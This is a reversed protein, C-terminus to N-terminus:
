ELGTAVRAMESLFHGWGFPYDSIDAARVFGAHILTVRTGSGDPELLWTVSQTPVSTDGRWDPWSITLKENPVLELIEMAPGAHEIEAEEQWGLDFRGGVRPEVRADKALWQNLAAPETLARFVNGPSADMTMAIRIEPSPDSFDPRLVQGHGTSQATLNGLVLRWWDDIMERSRPQGIPGDLVHEIAVRTAPGQESEEPTLAITVRSPTGFLKWDFAIREDPEIAVLTGIADEEGPTGVTHRGWFRFAGGPKPDVDAHEAFWQELESKTTLATFIRDTPAPIPFSYEHTWGDMM